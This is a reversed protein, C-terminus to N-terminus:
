GISRVSWSTVIGEKFEITIKYTGKRGANRILDPNWDRYWLQDPLTVDPDPFKTLVDERTMGKEIFNLIPEVIKRERAAKQIFAEKWENGATQNWENILELLPELPSASGALDAEPEASDISVTQTGLPSTLTYTIGEEPQTAEPSQQFDEPKLIAVVERLREQDLPFRSLHLQKGDGLIEVQVKDSTVEIRTAISSFQGHGKLSVQFPLIDKSSVNSRTEKTPELSDSECSLLVASLVLAPLLTKM